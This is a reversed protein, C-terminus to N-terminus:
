RTQSSSTISVQQVPSYVVEDAGKVFARVYYDGNPVDAYVTYSSGPGPVDPTEMIAVADHDVDPLSSTASYCIGLNLVDTDMDMSPSLVVAFDGAMQGGGVDFVGFNTVVPGDPFTYSKVESLKDGEEVYGSGTASVTYDDGGELADDVFGPWDGRYAHLLAQFYLTAGPLLALDDNNTWSLYFYNYGQATYDAGGSGTLRSWYSIGGTSPLGSRDDSYYLTSAYGAPSYPLDAPDPTWRVLLGGRNRMGELMIPDDPVLGGLEEYPIDAVNVVNDMVVDETLVGTFEDVEYCGTLLLLAATLCSLMNKLKM